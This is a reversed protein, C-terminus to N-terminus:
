IAELYLSASSPGQLSPHLFVSTYVLVWPAWLQRQSVEAGDLFVLNNVKQGFIILFHSGTSPLTDEM